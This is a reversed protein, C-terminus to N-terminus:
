CGTTGDEDQEDVNGNADWCYYYTTTASKLYGSLAVAGTGFSNSSWANTANGTAATVAAVGQDAMMTEIATQVASKEADKAGESGKSTFRSLQPVIAAALAVIIGVVILMEILTFGSEEGTRYGILRKMRNM